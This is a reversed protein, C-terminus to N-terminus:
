RSIQLLIWVDMELGMSDRRQFYADTREGIYEMYNLFM